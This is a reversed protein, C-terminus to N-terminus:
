SINCVFVAGLIHPKLLKELYFFVDENVMENVM